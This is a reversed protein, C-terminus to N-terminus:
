RAVDVRVAIGDALELVSGHEVAVPQGAPLSSRDSGSPPILLTGNTSYLDTVLIRWGDPVVELHTRSIDHSPSPVTLLRCPGSGRAAPARGVLVTRDLLAESGDTVRLVALAPQAVARARHDAITAGCLRCQQLGPPSPHGYPCVVAEVTPGAPPASPTAAGPVGVLETDANEHASGFPPVPASAPELLVETPEVATAGPRTRGPEARDRESIGVEEASVGGGFQPSHLRAQPRGDLLVASARVVGVVLPLLLADRDLEAGPTEVRVTQLGTLGVENWTQIGAGSAVVRGSPHELVTVAGRVLSRMGDETWFLAAFGPMTDLGFGALRAALDVLSSSALVQQWLEAILPTWGDGPPEVVVMSTPGSLVLWDGAAYTARWQGVATM